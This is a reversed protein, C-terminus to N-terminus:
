VLKKKLKACTKEMAQLHAHAKQPVQRLLAEYAHLNGDMQGDMRRNTKGDVNVRPTKHACRRM